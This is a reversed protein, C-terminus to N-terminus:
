RAFGGWTGLLKGGFPKIMERAAEDPNGYTTFGTVEICDM